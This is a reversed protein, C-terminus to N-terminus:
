EGSYGILNDNNIDNGQEIRIETLVEIKKERNVKAESLENRLKSQFAKRKTQTKKLRDASMTDNVSLKVVDLLVEQMSEENQESIENVLDVTTHFIQNYEKLEQLGAQIAMESVLEGQLSPLMSSIQLSSAQAAQITTDIIQIRDKQKILSQKVQVQLNKAKFGTMNDEQSLITASEDQILLQSHESAMQDRLGYLTHMVTGINKQKSDLSNFLRNIVDVMQGSKINREDLNDAAKNVLTGIVPIKAFFSKRGPAGKDTMGEITSIANAISDNVENLQLMSISDAIKNGQSKSAQSFAKYNNELEDINHIILGTENSQETMQHEKYMKLETLSKM